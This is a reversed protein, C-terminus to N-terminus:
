LLLLSLASCLLLGSLTLFWLQWLRQKFIANNRWRLMSPETFAGLESIAKPVVVVGMYLQCGSLWLIALATVAELVSM